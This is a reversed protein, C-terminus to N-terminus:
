TCQVLSTLELFLSLIAGTLDNTEKYSLRVTQTIVTGKMNELVWWGGGM